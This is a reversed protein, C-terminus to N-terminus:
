RNNCTSTVFGRLSYGIQPFSLGVGEPNHTNIMIDKLDDIKAQIDPTIREIPDCTQRLTDYPVSLIPSAM